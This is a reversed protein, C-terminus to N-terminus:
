GSTTWESLTKAEILDELCKHCLYGGYYREVSRESRSGKKLDRHGIGQIMSNCKACRPLGHPREEYHIVTRGGPTRRFARRKSRSRQSPRPM